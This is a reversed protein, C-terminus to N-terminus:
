TELPQLIEFPTLISDFPHDMRNPTIYNRVNKVSKLQHEYAFKPAMSRNEITLDAVGLARNTGVKPLAFNGERSSVVMGAFLVVELVGMNVQLRSNVLDFLRTMTPDVIEANDRKDLDNMTAELINAIEAAHDSMNYRMTPLTLIEQTWDWDDMDIVYDGRENLGWGKRKIYGLLPYTMAAKRRDVSVRHSTVELTEGAGVMLGIDQIQSIRGISTLQLVDTVQALDTLNAASSKAIVLRVSKGKLNPALLYSMHQADTTLYHKTFDDLVIPENVVSNVVHKTSLVNQSIIETMQTCCEQGLNGGLPDIFSESMRGFCTSCVGYPDPHACHLVSRLKVTHGILDTRGPHIAELGGSGNVFYKGDMLELDSRVTTKDDETEGRITWYLYEESGCDGIHLNKLSECVLQLRRNFYETQKLPNDAQAHAMAAHRSEIISDYISRLGEAFGRMIPRPFTYSDTDSVFGRPGVIQLVQSMSATKTRLAHTVPNGALTPDNVMVDELVGHIKRINAETPTQDEKVELVRPHDLIAIYDTVDLSTVYAELRYSLDNYILNTLRYTMEGLQDLTVERNNPYADRVSWMCNGLLKLHTSTTLSKKGIVYRLHHKMLMPTEPYKRHFEWCYSSYLSERATVEMEDDDFVLVFRGALISWLQETSYKLLERASIRKM